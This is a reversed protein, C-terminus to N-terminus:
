SVLWHAIAAGSAGVSVIEMLLAALILAATAWVTVPEVRGRTAGDHWLLAAICLGAFAYWPLEAPMIMALARGVPRVTSFAPGLIMVSALLMLRKHIPPRRRWYIAAGVFLAFVLLAILDGVIIPVAIQQLAAETQDATRGSAHIAGIVRPVFRVVTYAGSSVVAAATVVGLVGLRRHLRTNRAAVLWTQPVFLAFWVTLIAGHVALHTPIRANGLLADNRSLTTRLYLTPSFAIVVVTFIIISLVVFLWPQPRVAVAPVAEAKRTAPTVDVSM